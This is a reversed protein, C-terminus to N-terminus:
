QVSDYKKKIAECKKAFDELAAKATTAGTAVPATMKSILWTAGVEGIWAMPEGSYSTSKAFKSTVVVQKNVPDNQYFPDSEYKKLAPYFMGNGKQMWGLYREPSYAWLAIQRSQDQYKSTTFIGFFNGGAFTQMENNGGPAGPVAAFSTKALLDPNEKRMTDIISGSNFISAAQGSLWAKNNGTDDWGTAGQPIVKHTKYLDTFFTLAELTEPSNVVIKGSEDQMKGGFAWMFPYFGNNGDPCDSLQQGFGWMNKSPDTVQKTFALFDATTKPPEKLGAQTLVDQRYYMLQPEIHSRLAVQKGKFTVEKAAVDVWGGGSEGLTKYLDSLDVLLKMANHRVPDVCVGSDPLTKAEIAAALKQNLDGWPFAQVEVGFNNKEGAQKASEAIYANVEPIFHQPIWFTLTVKAGTAAPQAAVTPKAAVAAPTSAAPAATTAPKAAAPQATPEPAAGCAGLLPAIAGIGVLTAAASLFGRRNLSKRPAHQFM